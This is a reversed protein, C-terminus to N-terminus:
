AAACRSDSFVMRVGTFLLDRPASKEFSPALPPVVFELERLCRSGMGHIRRALMHGAEPTLVGSSLWNKPVAEATGERSGNM